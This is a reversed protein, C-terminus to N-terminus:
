SGPPPPLSPPVALARAVSETTYARSFLAYAREALAAGLGPEMMLRACQAAFAEPTDGLLLHEDPLAHIGEAGVTTSVVPRRYSFAELIKIRTGGGARIPAVVADAEQYWPALDPVPGIVRVDPSRALAEVPPALGGGVILVRLARGAKLRILPRIRRCLQVVADENPYYGLTGVFLFTFPREGVRPPLPPPVPLGNPLVCVHAHAYEAVVARDHESCVYIRDFDRAVAAELLAQREAEKEEFAAMSADGNLRYLAALRRHTISEVDDLDLHRRLPQGPADLWPGAFPLSALRFVHVVDFPADRFTVSVPAGTREARGGIQLTGRLWSLVPHEPSAARPPPACAPPLVAVQRCRKAIIPPLVGGFPPYRSAVLVSVRYQRVLAQLVTSARMALGNGTLAPMVPSVFLLSPKM